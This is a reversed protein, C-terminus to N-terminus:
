GGPSCSHLQRHLLFAFQNPSECTGVRQFGCLIPCGATDGLNILSSNSSVLAVSVPPPSTAGQHIFNIQTVTNAQLNVFDSYGRTVVGGPNQCLFRVRGPFGTIPINPVLFTGDTNVQTSRNQVTATCSPGMGIQAYSCPVITVM